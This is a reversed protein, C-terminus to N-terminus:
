KMPTLKRLVHNRAGVRAIANDITTEFLLSRDLTVSLYTPNSFYRFLVVHFCFGWIKIDYKSFPPILPKLFTLPPICQFFNPVVASILIRLFLQLDNPASNEITLSSFTLKQEFVLSM